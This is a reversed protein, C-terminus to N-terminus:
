EVSYDRNAEIDKILQQLMREREDIIQLLDKIEKKLQETDQTNTSIIQTYSTNTPRTSYLILFLGFILIICIFVKTKLAM